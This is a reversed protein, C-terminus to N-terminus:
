RFCFFHFLHGCCTTAIGAIKLLDDLFEDWKWPWPAHCVAGSRAFTGNSSCCDATGVGLGPTTDRLSSTHFNSVQSDIMHNPFYMCVLISYPVVFVGSPFHDV